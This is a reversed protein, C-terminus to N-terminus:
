LAVRIHVKNITLPDGCDSPNMRHLGHIDITFKMVTLVDLLQEKLCSRGVFWVSGDWLWTALMNM